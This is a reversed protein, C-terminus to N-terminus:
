LVVMKKGENGVNNIAMALALGVVGVRRSVEPKYVIM